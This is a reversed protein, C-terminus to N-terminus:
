PCRELRVTLRLRQDSASGKTQFVVGVFLNVPDLVSQMILKGRIPPKSHHSPQEPPAEWEGEVFALPEFRWVVLGFWWKLTVQRFLGGLFRWGDFCSTGEFPCLFGYGKAWSGAFM